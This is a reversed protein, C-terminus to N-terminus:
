DLKDAPGGSQGRGKNCQAQIDITNSPLPLGDLRLRSRVLVYLAVSPRTLEQSPIVAQFCFVGLLVQEPNLIATPWPNSGRSGRPEVTKLVAAKSWEALGGSFQSKFFGAQAFCALNYLSARLLCPTDARHRPRPFSMAVPLDGRTM